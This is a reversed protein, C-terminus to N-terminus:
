CLIYGWVTVTITDGSGPTPASVSELEIFLSQDAAALRFPEAIPDSQARCNEATYYYNHCPVCRAIASTADAISLASNDNTAAFTANSIWANFMVSGTWKSSVDIDIKTIIIDDGNATGETDLAIELVAPASTSDTVADGATYATTDAPRAFSGSKKFQTASSSVYLTGDSKVKLATETAGDLGYILRRLYGM